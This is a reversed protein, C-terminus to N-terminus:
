TNLAMAVVVVVQMRVCMYERERKSERRVIRECERMRKGGEVTKNERERERERYKESRNERRVRTLGTTEHLM